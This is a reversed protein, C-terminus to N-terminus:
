DPILDLGEPTFASFKLWHVALSKRATKNKVSSFRFWIGEDQLPSTEAKVWLYFIPTTTEKQQM